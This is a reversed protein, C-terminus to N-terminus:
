AIGPLTVPRLLEDVDPDMKSVTSAFEGFKITGNTSDRRTYIKAARILIAQRVYAPCWAELVAEDYGAEDPDTEIGVEAARVKLLCVNLRNRILQDATRFSDTVVSKSFESVSEQRLWEFLDADTPWVDVAAVSDENPWTAM